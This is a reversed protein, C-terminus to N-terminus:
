SQKGSILGRLKNAMPDVGTRPSFHAAFRGDPTMVYTIGSHDMSYSEGQPVKKYYVRYAAAVEAIQAPTGTLGVISPHFAEAYAKMIEPTDREPDVTIFLPQVSAALPGLQDLVLAVDNLTTPCVDPCNTFGFFVLLWKGRYTQDTVSKGDQDVLHFAGGIPVSETKSAAVPESAGGRLILGAAIIGVLLLGGVTLGLLGRKMGPTM